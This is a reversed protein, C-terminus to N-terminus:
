SKDLGQEISREPVLWIITMAVFLGCSIRTDIYALPIAMLYGITSFYSKVKMRQMGVAVAGHFEHTRMIQWQLISYAAGCCMLLISYVIVTNTAFHNEGMWSTAFPMLSLWFLLVLNAWLIGSNVHRVVQLMHHHNVWYIGIFTFSLVYGSLQPVLERLVSWDSSHPVKLELIMITIIIALVGDSFAELRNKEM